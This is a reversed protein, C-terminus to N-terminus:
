AAARIVVALAPRTTALSADLKNPPPDMPKGSPLGGLAIGALIDDCFADATAAASRKPGGGGDDSGANNAAGIAAVAGDGNM